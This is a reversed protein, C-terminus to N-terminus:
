KGMRGAIDPGPRDQHGDTDDMGPQHSFDTMPALMLMGTAVQILAILHPPTGKLWKAALAALAYFFSAVLAMLIGLGYGDSTAGGTEPKAEVI